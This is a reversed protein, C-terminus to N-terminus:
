KKAPKKAAGAAPAAAAPQGQGTTAAQITEPDQFKVSPLRANLKTMVASTLDMSPDFVLVAGQPMVVNVGRESAVGQAVVRLTNLVEQMAQQTSYELREQKERVQGQAEAFKKQFDSAKQQWVDPALVNRQNSLDQDEARLKSSMDNAQSQYIGAYREREKLVSQAAASDHLIRDTDVVGIVPASVSQAHAPLANALFAFAAAAAVQTARRTFTKTNM